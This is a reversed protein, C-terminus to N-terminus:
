SWTVTRDWEGAATKTPVLAQLHLDVDVKASASLDINGDLTATNTVHLLVIGDEYLVADTPCTFTEDFDRDHRGLDDRRLHLAPRDPRRLRLRDPERDVRDADDDSQPPNGASTVTATNLTATADGPLGRLHLDRHRRPSRRLEPLRRRPRGTSDEARRQRQLTQAIAAPNNVHDDGTVVFNKPGSDTKDAVM